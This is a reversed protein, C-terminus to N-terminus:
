ARFGEIVTDWFHDPDHAFQRGLNWIYKLRTGLRLSASYAFVKFVFFLEKEKKVSCVEMITGFIIKSLESINLMPKRGARQGKATEEFRDCHLLYETEQIM